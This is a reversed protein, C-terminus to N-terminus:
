EVLPSVGQCEGSVGALGSSAEFRAVLDSAQQACDASTAPVQVRYTFPHVDSAMAGTAGLVALLLGFAMEHERHFILFEGPHLMRYRSKSSRFVKTARRALATRRAKPPATDGNPHLFTRM